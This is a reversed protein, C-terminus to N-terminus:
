FAEALRYGLATVGDTLSGVALIVSRVTPRLTAVPVPRGGALVTHLSEAVEAPTGPCSTRYTHQSGHSFGARVIRGPQPDSSLKALHV